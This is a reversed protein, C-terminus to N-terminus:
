VKNLYLGSARVKTISSGKKPNNLLKKIDENTKRNENVDILAGVIMRVMGRLFGNGKIKIVIENGVKNIKIYEINRATDEIDSISFSLFNHKGIFLKSAAKIKTLNIPKDYVLYYDKFFPNDNKNYIKYIYEKAKASFRAHFDNGVKKLSKIKIDEPVMRKLALLLENKDM